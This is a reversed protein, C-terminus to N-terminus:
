MVNKAKEYFNVSHKVERPLDSRSILRDLNVEQLRSTSSSQDLSYHDQEKASFSCLYSSATGDVMINVLRRASSGHTSRNVFAQGLVPVFHNGPQSRVINVEVKSESIQIM